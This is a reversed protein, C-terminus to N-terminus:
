RDLWKLGLQKHNYPHQTNPSEASIRLPYQSLVYRMNHQAFEGSHEVTLPLKYNRPQCFGDQIILCWSVKWALSHEDVFVVSLVVFYM